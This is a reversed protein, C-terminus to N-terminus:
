LKNQKYSSPRRRNARYYNRCALFTHFDDYRYVQFTLRLEDELATWAAVQTGHVVLLEAHRAFYGERTLIALKWVPVEITETEKPM